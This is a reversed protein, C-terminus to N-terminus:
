TTCSVFPMVFCNVTCTVFDNKIRIKTIKFKRSKNIKSDNRLKNMVNQGSHFNRGVKKLVSGMLRPLGGNEFTTGKPFSKVM